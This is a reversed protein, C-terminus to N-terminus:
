FGEPIYITAEGNANGPTKEILLNVKTIQHSGITPVTRKM